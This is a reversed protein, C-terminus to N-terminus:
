FLRYPFKSRLVEINKYGHELLYHNVFKESKEQDAAPGIVIKKLVDNKISSFDLDVFEILEYGRPRKRLNPTPQDGRFFQMFRYENEDKYAEHKFFLASHILRMSLERSLTKIFMNLEEDSFSHNEAHSILPFMESIIQNHLEHIESDNYRTEFTSNHDKSNPLEKTFFNELRECNFVLNYGQGNDAYARWQNLDDDKTSFSCVYYHATKHLQDQYLKFFRSCFAKELTTGKDSLNKLIEIAHSFGHKIESPDNVSFLDTFRLTGSSLIGALGIDNTYHYINTPIKTANVKDILASNISEAISSSKKILALSNELVTM